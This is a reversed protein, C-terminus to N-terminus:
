SCICTFNNGNLTIRAHVTDVVLPACWALAYGALVAAACMVSKLM